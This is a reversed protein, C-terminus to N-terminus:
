EKVRVYKEQIRQNVDLDEILEYGTQTLTDGNVELTFEFMQGEWERYNCYELFERYQTGSLEYNGGGAVFSPEAGDGLDHNMFAFHTGNFM